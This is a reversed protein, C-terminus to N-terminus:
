SLEPHYPLLSLAVAGIGATLVAFIAEPDRKALVAATFGVANVTDRGVPEGLIQEDSFQPLAERLAARHAESTCILRQAPPVVGEVRRGALELLSRGDVLPLLQKPRHRRSMPWLRTGAGGAMIVAYRM